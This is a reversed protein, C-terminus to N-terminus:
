TEPDFIILYNALIVEVVKCKYQFDILSDSPLDATSEHTEDEPNIIISNNSNDLLIPGWIISLNSINMKNTTQHSQIKFLHGILFRLTLYNADPLKNVLEHIEILRRREDEIKSAEIFQHYLGRILLPDPLERFFLKVLGTLDNINDSNIINDITTLYSNKNFLSKLHEIHSNSGSYRYLGPSDIGIDEIIKICKTIILPIETNERRIIENLDEGFVIQPDAEASNKIFKYCSTKRQTENNENEEEEEITSPIEEYANQQIFESLDRKNNIDEILKGLSVNEKLSNLTSADFMTVNEYNYAYKKLHDQLSQDCEDNTEKLSKLLAPVHVQKYENRINNTINLQTIYNENQLAVKLRADDELKLLKQPNSQNSKFLNINILSNKKLSNLTRASNVISGNKKLLQGQDACFHKEKEQLAEDWNQSLTEYKQRTKELISESEILNKKYKNGAEKLQKRSRETNKFTTSIAEYTDNITQVFKLHNQGIKEHMKIFKIYSKNFTGLKRNVNGKDLIELSSQTLKLMSKAYEEEIIARKKLFGIIEKCSNCNQKVRNLLVTTGNDINLLSKLIIEDDILFEDVADYDNYENLNEENLETEQPETSNNVGNKRNQLEPDELDIDIFEPNETVERPGNRNLNHNDESVHITTNSNVISLQHSAKLDFLSGDDFYSNLNTSNNLMNNSNFSALTNLSASNININTKIKDALNFEDDNHKLNEKKLTFDDFVQNKGIASNLYSDDKLSLDTLNIHTVKLDLSSNSDDNPIDKNDIQDLSDTVELTAIKNGTDNSSIVEASM